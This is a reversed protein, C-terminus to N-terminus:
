RDKFQKSTKIWESRVKLKAQQTKTHRAALAKSLHLPFFSCYEDNGMQSFISKFCMRSFFSTQFSIVMSALFSILNTELPSLSECVRFFM